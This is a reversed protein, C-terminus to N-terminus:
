TPLHTPDRLRVKCKSQENPRNITPGGAKSREYSENTECAAQRTFKAPQFMLKAQVTALRTGPRRCCFADGAVFSCGRVGPKQGVDADEAGQV